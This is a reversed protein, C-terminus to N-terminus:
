HTHMCLIVQFQVIHLNYGIYKDIIVHGSDNYLVNSMVHIVVTKSIKKQQIKAMITIVFQQM